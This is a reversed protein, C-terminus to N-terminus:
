IEPYRKQLKEVLSSFINEKAQSADIIIYRRPYKKAVNLYGERVRRHFKLTEKEIRDLNKRTGKRVRTLGLAPDLDFLITAHPLFDPLFAKHLRYIQEPNLGRGYGQYALSSDMYRDCLVTVGRKLAPLIVKNLHETRQALMMFLETAPELKKSSHDLLLSRVADGFLTGGPERTCVVKLGRKQLADALLGIQTTKGSGEPGEFTIFLPSNKKKPTVRSM